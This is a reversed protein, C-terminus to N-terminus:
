KVALQSDDVNRGGANEKAIRLVTARDQASPVSGSLQVTDDTVNINVDSASLGSTNHLSNQISSQVQAPTM